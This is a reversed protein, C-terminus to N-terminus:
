IHTDFIGCFAGIPDKGKFAEEGTMLKEVLADLTVPKSDYTNIYTRAQPIDALVYPYQTGVVIVPLEFVYWPIEGGGKTMGFAPRAVPQFGGAIDVLTIILDQNERFEKIPTKGAFYLNVDPKEGAEIKKIMQDIPSEYIFADFGKAILRDRLEEAPTSKKVGTIAALGPASLGKVYVIMIRKYRDPTVPLVDKDKYKVLTIAQDAIEKQMAVHEDCGIIKHVQERPPILKTKDKKHLGMHAKLALIRHLAEDLREKTIRGDLYGQKMSAFDEEMENFFLFMDVGAAIAAPLMDGRKMRCTLGVMHSADTLVLGNFGLKGRLLGKILEPSLTAPMMEDDTLEPNFYRAYAPQMIHGAMIADLGNEILNQYVRGYTKDWEECSMSNVSNAVHQDRFDLGDGPFHKAACCFGPNAHAGDMYAKTMEVVKKPENGYTRLGIVPNEWNYMIDSVPAFSLNCGIAAAEKNAMYGMQYAYDAKRTAGIKTQGGIPTGDVCAGDGGSETNCAIILPIKSNEQLIRNQEYIEDATAPNYRIGGIHYDRVTMKLYEEERSSGMNFFLQGIKEDVTMGAITDEVWKCDEDTLYFPKAKIDVM